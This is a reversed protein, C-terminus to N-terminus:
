DFTRLQKKEKRTRQRKKQTESHESNYKVKIHEATPEEEYAINIIVGKEALKKIINKYKVCVSKACQAFKEREEQTAPAQKETLGVTEMLFGDEINTLTIECNDNNELYFVQSNPLSKIEDLLIGEEAFTEEIMRNIYDQENKKTLEDKLKDIDAKMQSVTIEKLPKRGLKMMIAKYESIVDVLEEMSCKSNIKMPYEQIIKEIREIKEKFSLQKDSDIREIQRKVMNKYDLDSQSWVETILVSYVTILYEIYKAQEKKQEERTLGFLDSTKKIEVVDGNVFSSTKQLEKTIVEIQVDIIGSVDESTLLTPSDVNIKKKIIAEIDYLDAVYTSNIISKINEIRSSIEKIEKATRDIDEQLQRAIKLKRNAEIYARSFVESSM